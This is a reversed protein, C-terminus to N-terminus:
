KIFKLRLEVYVEMPENNEFTYLRPLNLRRAVWGQLIHLQVTKDAVILEFLPKGKSRDLTRKPSRDRLEKKLFTYINFWVHWSLKIFYGRKKLSPHLPEVGERSKKQLCEKIMEETFTFNEPMKDMLMEETLIFNETM